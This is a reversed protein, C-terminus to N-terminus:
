SKSFEMTVTSPLALNCEVEIAKLIASPIPCAPHPLHGSASVVCRTANLKGFIEVYSDIRQLDVEMEKVSPCGSKLEIDVVQGDESTALIATVFGCPGPNVMVKTM